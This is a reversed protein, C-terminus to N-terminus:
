KKLQLAVHYNLGSVRHPEISVVWNSVVEDNKDFESVLLNAVTERSPLKALDVQSITILYQSGNAPVPLESAGEGPM